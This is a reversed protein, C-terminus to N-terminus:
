IGFLKLFPFAQGAFYLLIAFGIWIIYVWAVVKTVSEVNFMKAFGIGILAYFWIGIIDLKALLVGTLTSSDINMLAALSLSNLPKGLLFMLLGVIIYGITLIYYPLGYAVLADKYTGSGKFGFKTVLFFFGALILVLVFTVLITSIFQIWKGKEFQEDMNSSIKDLQRDAQEQTMTGNDVLTKFNKEIREMQKEQIQMRIEPDNLSFFNIISVVISFVLIPLLWDITKVGRAKIKSFINSPETFIGVIEDSVSVTEEQEFNDYFGEGM